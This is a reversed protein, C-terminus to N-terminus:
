ITSKQASLVATVLASYLAPFVALYIAKLQVLGITPQIASQQASFIAAISTAVLSLRSCLPSAPHGQAPSVWRNDIHNVSSCLHHSCCPNVKPSSLHSCLCSFLCDHRTTVSRPRSGLRSWPVLLLFMSLPLTPSRFFSVHVNGESGRAPVVEKQWGGGTASGGKKKTTYLFAYPELIVQKTHFLCLLLSLSVVANNEKSSVFEGVKTLGSWARVGVLRAEEVFCVHRGQVGTLFQNNHIGRDGRHGFCCYWCHHSKEISAGFCLSKSQKFINLYLNEFQIFPVGIKDNFQCWGMAGYGGWCGSWQPGEPCWKCCFHNIIDKTCRIDDNNNSVGWVDLIKGIGDAVVPMDEMGLTM